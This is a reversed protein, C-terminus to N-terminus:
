SWASLLCKRHRGEVARPSMLSDHQEHHFDMGVTLSVSGSTLPLGKPCAKLGWEHSPCDLRKPKRTKTGTLHAMALGWNIM